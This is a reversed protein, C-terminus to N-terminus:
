IDKIKIAPVGAILLNSDFSKTVVSNAGIVTNNGIVLGKTITVKNGIWVEKKIQIPDSTRKKINKL